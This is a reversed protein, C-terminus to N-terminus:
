EQTIINGDETLVLTTVEGPYISFSEQAEFLVRAGLAARVVIHYGRGSLILKGPHHEDLQIKGAAALDGTNTKVEYTALLTATLAEKMKEANEAAIYLGNHEEAAQNLRELDEDPIEGPNFGVVHIRHLKEALRDANQLLPHREAEQPKACTDAGDTLIIAVYEGRDEKVPLDDKDAAMALAYAIPTATGLELSPLLENLIRDRIERIPSAKRILESALCPDRPQVDHGFIRLAVQTEDPLAKLLVGVAECALDMRTRGESVLRNMSRSADLLLLVGEPATSIRGGQYILRLHGALSELIPDQVMDQPTAEKDVLNRVKAVQKRGNEDLAKYREVAPPFVREIPTGAPDQATIKMSIHDGRAWVLEHEELVVDPQLAIPYSITREIGGWAGPVLRDMKWRFLLCGHEQRALSVDLLPYGADALGTVKGTQELVFRWTKEAAEERRLHFEALLTTRTQSKPSDVVAPVAHEWLKWSPETNNDGPQMDWTVKWDKQLFHDILTMRLAREDVIDWPSFRHGLNLTPSAIAMVGPPLSDEVSIDNALPAMTRGLTTGLLRTMERPDTIVGSGEWIYQMVTFFELAKTDEADNLLNLCVLRIGLQATMEQIWARFQSVDPMFLGPQGDCIIVVILEEGTSTWSHRQFEQYLQYLGYAYNTGGHGSKIGAIIERAKEGAPDGPEIGLQIWSLIQHPETNFGLIRFRDGPSLADLLQYLAAQVPSCPTDKWLATESQLHINMSSSLDLLVAVRRSHRRPGGHELTVTVQGERTVATLAPPWLTKLMRFGLHGSDVSSLTPRTKSTVVWRIGYPALWSEVPVPEGPRSKIIEPLEWMLRVLYEGPKLDEIYVRRPFLYGKPFYNILSREKKACVSAIPHRLDGPSFLDLHVAEHPDQVGDTLELRLINEELIPQQIRWWATGRTTPRRQHTHFPAYVWQNHPLEIAAEPEDLLKVVTDPSLSGLLEVQVAYVSNMFFATHHHGSLHVDLLFIGPVLEVIMGMHLRTNWRTNPMGPSAEEFAARTLTAEVTGDCRYLTIEARLFLQQVWLRYAGQQQIELRYVDHDGRDKGASIYSQFGYVSTGDTPLPVATNLLDTVTTKRDPRTELRDPSANGPPLPPRCRFIVRYSLLTRHGRSSDYPSEVKLLYRKGPKLGLDAIGAGALSIGSGFDFYLGDPSASGVKAGLGKVIVLTHHNMVNDSWHSPDDQQPVELLRVEMATGPIKDSSPYTHPGPLPRPSVNIVALQLTLDEQDVRLQWWDPCPEGPPEGPVAELFAEGIDGPRLVPAQHPERVAPPKAVVRLQIGDGTFDDSPSVRLRYVGASLVGFTQSQGWITKGRTKWPLPETGEPTVRQGDSTTLIAEIPHAAQSIDTDANMLWVGVRAGRPFQERDVMVQFVKEEELKGEVLTGLPLIAGTEELEQMSVCCLPTFIPERGTLSVVLDVGGLDTPRYRLAIDPRSVPHPESPANGEFIDKPVSFALEFRRSEYLQAGVGACFRRVYTESWDSGQFLAYKLSRSAVHLSYSGQGPPDAVELTFENHHVALHKDTPITLIVAADILIWQRDQEIAAGNLSAGPPLATAKFVSLRVPGGEAPPALVEPLGPVDIGPTFDLFFREGSPSFSLIVSHGQPNGEVLAAELEEPVQFVMEAFTVRAPILLTEDTFLGPLAAALEPDQLFSFQYGNDVRLAAIDNIRCQISGHSRNYLAASLQLLRTGPPAGLHGLTEHFTIGNIYVELYDSDTNRFLAGAALADRDAPEGELSCVAFGHRTDPIIVELHHITDLLALPVEYLLTGEVHEGPSLDLQGWLPIEEKKERREVRAPVGRLFVQWRSREKIHCAAPHPLLGLRHNLHLHLSEEVHPIRYTRVASINRLKVRLVLFGHGQRPKIHSPLHPMDMLREAQLAAMDSAKINWQVRTDRLPDQKGATSLIDSEVKFFDNTM